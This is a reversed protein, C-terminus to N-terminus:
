VPDFTAQLHRPGRFALGVIQSGEPDVLRLNPLRELLAAIAARTELRALRSGVCYHQGWGFALHDTARRHIDFRDPDAYHDEDRNASGICGSVDTGAPIEIGAITVAETTERSTLQVPAEWRLTEDIVWDIKEPDAAVEEMQEPHTLLAYMANAILRYTTEAGAPALLRLFNLLEEVSLRRGEVEANVLKSFLDDTPEERRKAILPRFYEALKQSAAISELPHDAFGILDGSWHHFEAFDEVPIGLIHVLTRLPFTFAFSPVLDARGERAFADILGHAIESVLEPLDGRLASPQLAPALIGRHRLHEKGDMEIITRGAVLGFGKANSRSSFVSPNKLVNRTDEYRTTMFGVRDLLRLAVLPRESRLRRYVSHPDPIPDMVTGGFLEEQTTAEVDM